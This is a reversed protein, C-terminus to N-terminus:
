KAQTAEAMRVEEPTWLNTYTTVATRFEPLESSPLPKGAPLKVKMANVQKNNVLVEYHLHPGTSRGTSGVYAIIEGQRVSRGKKMGKAYRHLHAYATKYTNGHRIRIYKGYGGNWKIEEIIGDGSAKVPTGTPAAFDTGKHARTYGLIPHKRHLNFHSSIRAFELPTRLLARRKSRGTEDYYESIGDSVHRFARRAKGRSVLEAALIEGHGVYKGQEDYLKEYIVKFSDGPRIDRTFDLEWGFLNAFPGVLAAPLGADTANMYLSSDIKGTVVAPQDVLERTLAQSTFDDGKWTLSVTRDHRPHFRVGDLRAPRAAAGDVSENELFRVTVKQGAKLKRLKYTRELRRLAPYVENASLGEKLLLTGLTQGRGLTLTKEIYIPPLALEEAPEAVELTEAPVAEIVSLSTEDIDSEARATELLGACVGGVAVLAAAGFLKFRLSQWMDNVM